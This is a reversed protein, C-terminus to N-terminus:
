LRNIRKKRREVKLETPPNTPVSAADMRDIASKMSQTSPHVYKQSVIVTSHGMLTMITFSEAGTEGLRTGFTHRLSHIVFDAPFGLLQRVAAHQQDLWTHYLAAGDANRFVLGHRGELSELVIRAKRTLPVSRAKGSKAHAGRVTIFGPKERLKVQPWELTLGEGVRLGTEILFSCFRRMELPLANLYRPEDERSLVFERASEGKLLKIRPVSAIRKWDRAMRLMRRLTALERNVSAPSMPTGRRSVTSIRTRKYAEIVEEDVNDLREDALASSELLRDLKEQYFVVTRPKAAREM